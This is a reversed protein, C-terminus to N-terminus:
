AEPEWWTALTYIRKILVKRLYWHISGARSLEQIQKDLLLDGFRYLRKAIWQRMAAQRKKM